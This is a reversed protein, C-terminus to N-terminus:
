EALLRRHASDAFGFCLHSLDCRAHGGFGRLGIVADKRADHVREDAAVIAMEGLALSQAGLAFTWRGGRLRFLHGGPRARFLACLGSCGPAGLM